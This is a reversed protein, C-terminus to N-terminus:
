GRTLEDMWNTLMLPLKIKKFHRVNNTVLVADAAIAHAAILMDMEGILNGTRMLEHRIEAYFEAGEPEWALVQVANLFKKVGIHLRHKQPLKKLGFLLEARTIASVCAEGPRLARLKDMVHTGGYDKIAYSAIDTDLMHLM